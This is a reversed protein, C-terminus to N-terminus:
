GIAMLQNPTFGRRQRQAPMEKPDPKGPVAQMSADLRARRRMKKMRTVFKRSLKLMNVASATWGDSKGTRQGRGERNFVRRLEDKVQEREDRGDVPGAGSSQM